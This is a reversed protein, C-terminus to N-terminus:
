ESVSLKLDLSALADLFQSIIKQFHPPKSYQRFNMRNPLTVTRVQSYAQGMREEKSKRDGSGKFLKSVAKLEQQKATDSQPM